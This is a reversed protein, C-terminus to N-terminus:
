VRGHSLNILIIYITVHIPLACSKHSIVKSKCCCVKAAAVVVYVFQVIGVSEILLALKIIYFIGPINLFQVPYKKALLSPLLQVM